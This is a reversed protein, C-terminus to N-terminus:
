EPRPQHKNFFSFQIIQELIQTALLKTHTYTESFNGNITYTEIIKKELLFLM